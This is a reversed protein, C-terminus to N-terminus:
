KWPDILVKIHDKPNRLAEFIDPVEDLSVIHSILPEPDIRGQNILTIITEYDALSYSFPFILEIKKVSCSVPYFTDATQCAGVAVIRTGVEAMNICSQIIGPIGVAEFIISPARGTQRTFEEVPNDTKNANICINAGMQSALALRKENRESIAIHTVGFHKLWTALTLGIPGAGIILAADDMQIRAKAIAEYGVALPEIAAARNFDVNDPLHIAENEGVVVFQSYAGTYAPSFGMNQLNECRLNEGALCMTCKGCSSHPLPVVRDGVQWRSVESGVASVVGAFEHGFVTGPKASKTESFHLDSGCIGCAKVQVKIQNTALEDEAREEVTLTQGVGQFVVAKM